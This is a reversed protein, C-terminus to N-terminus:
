EINRPFNDLSLINTIAREDFWVDGYGKLYAKKNTTLVGGNTDISMTANVERINSVLNPNCFLDVTSQNSLLTWKKMKVIM